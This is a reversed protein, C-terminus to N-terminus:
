KADREDEVSSTSSDISMETTNMELGEQTRNTSPIGQVLMFSRKNKHNHNLDDIFSLSSKDERIKLPSAELAISLRPEELISISHDDYTATHNRGNIKPAPISFKM